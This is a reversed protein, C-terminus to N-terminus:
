TYHQSTRSRLWAGPWWPRALRCLSHAVTDCSHGTRCNGGAPWLSAFNYGVYVCGDKGRLMTGPKQTDLVNIGESCLFAGPWASWAERREVCEECICEM